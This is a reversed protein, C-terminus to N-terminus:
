FFFRWPRRRTEAILSDLQARTAALADRIARDQQWRGISGHPQELLARLEAIRAGLTDARLALRRLAPSIRAREASAAAASHGHALERAAEAIRAAAEGLRNLVRLGASDALFAALPGEDVNRALADLEVRAGRVEAALRRLNPAVADVRAGLIAGQSRLADLEAGTARAEALLNAIRPRPRARLTDGPELVPAAATGPMIGVAPTSLPGRTVIRIESDRRVLTRVATPLEVRVAYVPISDHDPPLIEVGTVRGTARGALRVESGKEIGELEPFLGVIEYTEERSRVIDDLFFVLVAVAALALALLYASTSPRGQRRFM